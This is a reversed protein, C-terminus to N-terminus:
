YERSAFSYDSCGVYLIIHILNGGWGCVVHMVSMCNFDAVSVDYIIQLQENCQAHEVCHVNQYVLRENVIMWSM